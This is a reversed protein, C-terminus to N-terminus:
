VSIIKGPMQPAKSKSFELSLFFFSLLLEIYNKGRTKLVMIEGGDVKNKKRATSKNNNHQKEGRLIRAWTKGILNAIMVQNKQYLKRRKGATVKITIINRMSFSLIPSTERLTETMKGKKLQQM